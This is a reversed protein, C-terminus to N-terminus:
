NKTDDDVLYCRVATIEHGERVGHRVFENIVNGLAGPAPNVEVDGSTDYVDTAGILRHDVSIHWKM